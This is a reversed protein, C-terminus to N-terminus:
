LVKLSLTRVQCLVDGSMCLRRACQLPMRNYPRIRRFSQICCSVASTATCGYYPCALLDFAEPFCAAHSPFYQICGMCGNPWSDRCIFDICHYTRERLGNMRIIGSILPYM